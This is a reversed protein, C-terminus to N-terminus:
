LLVDESRDRFQISQAKSAICWNSDEDSSGSKTKRRKRRRLEVREEADRIQKRDVPELGKSMTHLLAHFKEEFFALLVIDDSQRGWWFRM